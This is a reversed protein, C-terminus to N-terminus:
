RGERSAPQRGADYKALVERWTLVIENGNADEGLFRCVSDLAESKDARRLLRITRRYKSMMGLSFGVYCVALIILLQGLGNM